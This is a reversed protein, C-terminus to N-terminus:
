GEKRTDLVHMIERSLGVIFKKILQVNEESKGKFDDVFSEM